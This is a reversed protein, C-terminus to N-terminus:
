PLGRESKLFPQVHKRSTIRPMGTFRAANCLAEQHKFSFVLWQIYVANQTYPGRGKRWEAWSHSCNSVKQGRSKKSVKISSEKAKNAKRKRMSSTNRRTYAWTSMQEKPCMGWAHTCFCADVTLACYGFTFILRTYVCGQAGQLQIKGYQGWALGFVVGRPCNCEPATHTHM